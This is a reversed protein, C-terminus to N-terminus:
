LSLYEELLPRPGVFSMDGKLVNFLQPLEDLSTKRIFNGVRTLRKEDSLLIGDADREDTMTRFKVVVFINGHKGPPRQTVWIKGNNAIALAIICCLIFPSAIVLAMFAVIKDLFPKTFGAYSFINHKQHPRLQAHLLTEYENKLESWIYSQDFHTSVL